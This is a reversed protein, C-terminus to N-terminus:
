QKPRKNSICVECSRQLLITLCVGLITSARWYSLCPVSVSNTSKRESLWPNEDYAAALSIRTFAASLKIRSGEMSAKGAHRMEGSDSRPNSRNLLALSMYPRPACVSIVHTFDVLQLCVDSAWSPQFRSRTPPKSCKKNEMIYPIIRGM